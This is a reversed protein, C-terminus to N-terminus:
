PKLGYDSPVVITPKNQPIIVTPQTRPNPNNFIISLLITNHIKAAAENTTSDNVSKPFAFIADNTKGYSPKQRDTIYPIM